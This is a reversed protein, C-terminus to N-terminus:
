GPCKGAHHPQVGARHVCRDTDVHQMRRLFCARSQEVAGDQGFGLRGQKKPFLSVPKTVQSFLFFAKRKSLWPTRSLQEFANLSFWKCGKAKLTSDWIGAGLHRAPVSCMSALESGLPLHGARCSLLECPAPAQGSDQLSASPDPQPRVHNELPILQM